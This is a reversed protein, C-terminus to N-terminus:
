KNNICRKGEKKKQRERMIHGKLADWMPRSMKPRELVVPPMRKDIKL